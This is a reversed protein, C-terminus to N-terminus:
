LIIMHNDPPSTIKESYVVCLLSVYRADRVACEDCLNRYSHLFIILDKQMIQASKIETFHLTYGDFMHVQSRYTKTM